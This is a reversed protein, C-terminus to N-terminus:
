ALNNLSTAVAPHDAGLAKEWIALSRKYLPEAQDYKAQAYYLKALDNLSNAVDPHDAGLAKERIALSRKHLPEAQDYKAQDDYLGALNNLSTAVAPHEAGLVKESIALLRKFLPEAQDYKAQADYLLALDNLSTALPADQAGSEVAVKLAALFLKEAEAYHGAKYAKQGLNSYTTWLVDEARTTLAMGLLAALFLLSRFWTSISANM